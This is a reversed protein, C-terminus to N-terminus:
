WNVAVLQVNTICEFLTKVKIKWAKKANQQLLAEMVFLVMNFYINFNDLNALFTSFSQTSPHLEVQAKASTNGFVTFSTNEAYKTVCFQLSFYFTDVNM